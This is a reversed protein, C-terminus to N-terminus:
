SSGPTPEQQASLGGALSQGTSRVLLRRTLNDYTELLADKDTSSIAEALRERSDFETYGRDIEQWYRNTRESLKQEKQLLEVLLSQRFQEMEEADLAAILERGRDDLFTEIAQQLQQGTARPSQIVMAIGPHELIPMASAFVVYGLQQETRLQTYFPSAIVKALLGYRARTQLNKNPGQLYFAIASDNHELELNHIQEGAALQRVQGEAVALPEVGALLVQELPESLALAQRRLLNGHALAEAEGKSYLAAIHDKLAAADIDALAALKQELSWQPSLLRLYVEEIAQNYPKDKRSNELSRQLDAKLIALREPDVALDRLTGVIRELLLSQKDSFGSIRVSFGRIHPYVQVRFGALQAPYLFSNLRDKVLRTYLDTLLHHRPSNNAVPSRLTFYFDARPTQFESDQQFWLRYGPQERLIVPKASAQGTKISFDEPLFPNPAPLALDSESQDGAWAELREPSVAKLSYPTDYWPARRDTDLNQATVTLLLNDPRLLDLYQHLLGPDFHEYLYDGHLVQARPYRKLNASLQMVYYLERSIERFRFATENIQREEEFIRAKIGEKKILRLYDFVLSVVQERRGFGAETLDISISFTAYDPYSLGPGASLGNAWGRNKLEALLSGQGEHGVLSGLYHLPKSRYHDWSPPVPFSLSLQHIDRLSEIQLEAPLAGPTFLPAPAQSEPLPRSPVAAFTKEVLGRLTEVPERGLVVVAMNDASYHQQYFDILVQRLPRDPRDTLTELNGVSFKALPHDPNLAARFAAYGRLSDEKLKSQYESHVAHRERDVYEPTFLPAIFFQAFRDLTPQLYAQDVDFFYNTRDHATFANHNGGHRSIHDQYAGAEPYKETGLFLMHELFHALGPYTEPDDGSGVGVDLSVAAKDAEPNSIVMAKLGNDLVFAEYVRPDNPSQVITQATSLASLLLALILLTLRSAHVTM